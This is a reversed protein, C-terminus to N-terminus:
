RAVRSYATTKALTFQGGTRDRRAEDPALVPIATEDDPALLQAWASLIAAWKENRRNVWREKRWASAPDAQGGRADTRQQQASVWTHPVFLLWLTGLRWEISLRVAEAYVRSRGEPGLGLSRPATGTLRDGYADGLFSRAAAEPVSDPRESSLNRVVLRHGRDRIVARVPLRRSLARTLAEYGLAKELSTAGAGLCDFPVGAPASTLSLAEALHGASGLALLRRGSAVAAGRWGAARLADRVGAADLDDRLSAQLARHPGDLVPLANMRLVPLEGAEVAPVAADTVRARGRLGSVYARLPSDLGAQRGLAALTEDFNEIHVLKASIGADAARGILSAVSPLVAQPDPTLWWLGARMAGPVSIAEQLTDMVSTDRGSYGVVVLGFRRSSDLFARHLTEDQERLESDLNRLEVERFDGHLKVLLPFDDDNLAVAARGPDGLAAVGLRPRGSMVASARAHDSAQEILDDFNTTLVLDALGQAIFAGLVRQGYSPARGSILSRLYQRRPGEDPLALRFAQSYDDPDGAPPMGNADDYYGLIRSRQDLNSVRVEQRVLGHADAYLRALLDVVVQGATPVGAAASAGAGLLWALRRGEVAWQRAFIGLDVVDVKM